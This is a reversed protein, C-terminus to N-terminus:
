ILECNKEEVWGWDKLHVGFPRNPYYYEVEYTGEVYEGQGNGYSDVYLYGAYKVKSGVTIKNSNTTNDVVPQEKVPENNNVLGKLRFAHVGDGRCRMVRCPNPNQSFYWCNYGDWNDFIAIHGYEWICVDGQMMNHVDVEDFYQNLDNRKNGWLMNNVLGCGSLVSYPVGLVQTFYAQALDWCQAGYAGDVDIYKENYKNKFEEYKKQLETITM